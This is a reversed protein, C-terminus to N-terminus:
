RCEVDGIAHINDFQFRVKETKTSVEFRLAVRSLDPYDPFGIGAAYGTLEHHLRLRAEVARVADRAAQAAPEGRGYLIDRFVTEVCRQLDRRLESM